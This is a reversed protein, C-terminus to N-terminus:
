MVQDNSQIDFTQVNIKKIHFIKCLEELTKNKFEGGNDTIITKPTSFASIIESFAVLAITEAKRNAM